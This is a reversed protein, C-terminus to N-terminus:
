FTKSLEVLLKNLLPSKFLLGYNRMKEKSVKEKLTLHNFRTEKLQGSKKLRSKNLYVFDVIAKEPEALLVDYGSNKYPAYGIFCNLKIKHYFFKGLKTNNAWTKKTTISTISQPIDPILGHEYLASELSIYSPQYLINAILFQPVDKKHGDLLFVGNKLRLLYGQQCWRSLQQASIVDNKFITRIDEKTFIPRIELMKQYFPQFQM